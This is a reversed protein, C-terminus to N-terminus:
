RLRAEEAARSGARAGIDAGRLHKRAAAEAAIKKKIEEIVDASLKTGRGEFYDQVNPPMNINIGSQDQTKGAFADAIAEGLVGKGPVSTNLHLFHGLEHALTKGPADRTLGEQYYRDLSPNLSIDRTDGWVPSTESPKLYTVGLLNSNNLFDLTVGKRKAYDAWLKDGSRVNVKNALADALEYTQQAQPGAQGTRLYDVYRKSPEDRPIVEASAARPSIMAWIMDALSQEAM